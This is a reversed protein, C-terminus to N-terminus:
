ESDTTGTAPEYIVPETEQYTFFKKEPELLATLQAQLQTLYSDSGDSNSRSSGYNCSFYAIKQWFAKDISLLGKCSVKAAHRILCMYLLVQEKIINWDSTGDPIRMEIAWVDGNHNKRLNSAMYKETRINLMEQKTPIKRYSTGRSTSPNKYCKVLVPYYTRVMQIINQVVLPHFKSKEKHQDLVFTMHLGASSNNFNGLTKLYDFVPKVDIDLKDFVIPRTVTEPGVSGDNYCATVVEPTKYNDAIMPIKISTRDDDNLYATTDVTRPCNKGEKLNYTKCIREIVAREAVMEFEFGVAMNHGYHKLIDPVNTLTRTAHIKNTMILRPAPATRTVPAVENLSRVMHNLHKTAQDATSIGASQWAQEFTATPILLHEYFRIHTSNRGIDARQCYDRPLLNAQRILAIKQEQSLQAPM